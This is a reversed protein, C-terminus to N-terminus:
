SRGGARTSGIGARAQQADHVPLPALRPASYSKSRSLELACVIGEITTAVYWRDGIDERSALRNAIDRRHLETGLDGDLASWFQKLADAAAGLPARLEHIVADEGDALSFREVKGQM